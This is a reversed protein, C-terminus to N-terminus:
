LNSYVPFELGSNRAAAREAAELVALADAADALTSLPARRDVICEKVFFDIEEVFGEEYCPL